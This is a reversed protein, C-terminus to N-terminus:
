NLVSSFVLAPLGFRVGSCQLFLVTHSTSAKCVASRPEIGPVGYLGQVGWSHAGFVSGLTWRLGKGVGFFDVLLTLLFLFFFFFSFSFDLVLGPMDHTNLFHCSFNNNKEKKIVVKDDNIVKIHPTMPFGWGQRTGKQM